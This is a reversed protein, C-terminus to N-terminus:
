LFHFVFIIRSKYIRSLRKFIVTLWIHCIFKTFLTSKGKKCVTENVKGLSKKKGKCEIWYECFVCKFPVKCLWKVNFKCKSRCFITCISMSCIFLFFNLMVHFTLLHIATLTWVVNNMYHTFNTVNDIHKIALLCLDYVFELVNSIGHTHGINPFQERLWPSIQSTNTKNHFNSIPNHIFVILSQSNTWCLRFRKIPQARSWLLMWNSCWASTEM